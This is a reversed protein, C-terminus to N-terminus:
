YGATKPNYEELGGNNGAVLDHYCESVQDPHPAVDWELLDLLELELVALEAPPVGGVDAFSPNPWAFDSLSKCAVLVCSLLLRHVTLSSINFSTHERCLQKIYAVTMLLIPSTLSLRRTLRELYDGASIRPPRKSHFRTVAFRTRSVMDNLFTLRGLSNSILQAVASPDALDYRWPLRQSFPEPLLDKPLQMATGVGDRECPADLQVSRNSSGGGTDSRWEGHQRLWRELGQKIETDRKSRQLRPSTCNQARARVSSKVIPQQHGSIDKILNKDLRCAPGTSNSVVPPIHVGRGPRRQPTYQLMPDQGHQTSDSPISTIATSSAM